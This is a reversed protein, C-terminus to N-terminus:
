SATPHNGFHIDQEGGVDKGLKRSLQLSTQERECYATASPMHDVFMSYGSYVITQLYKHRKISPQLLEVFKPDM